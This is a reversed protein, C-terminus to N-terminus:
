CSMHTCLVQFKFMICCFDSCSCIFIAYSLQKFIATQDLLFSVKSLSLNLKILDIKRIPSILFHKTTPYSKKGDGPNGVFTWPFPSCDVGPPHLLKTVNKTLLTIDPRHNLSIDQQSRNQILPSLKLQSKEFIYTM